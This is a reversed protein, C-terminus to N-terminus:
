AREWTVAIINGIRTIIARYEPVIHGSPLDVFHPSIAVYEFRDMAYDARVDVVVCDRMVARVLPLDTELLRRGVTFRGLCRHSTDDQDAKNDVIM